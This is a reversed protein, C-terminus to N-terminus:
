SRRSRFEAIERAGIAVIRAGSMNLPSFFGNRRSLEIESVNGSRLNAADRERDAAKQAQRAAQDLVRLRPM